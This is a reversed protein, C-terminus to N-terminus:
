VTRMHACTPKPSIIGVPAESRSLKYRKYNKGPTIKVRMTLAVMWAAMFSSLFLSWGFAWLVYRGGNMTWAQQPAATQPNTGHKAAANVFQHWIKEAGFKATGYEACEWDLGGGTPVGPLGNPTEAFAPLLRTHMRGTWQPGTSSSPPPTRSGCWSPCPRTCCALLLPAAVCPLCSSCRSYPVLVYSIPSCACSPCRCCLPHGPWSAGDSCPALCLEVSVAHRTERPALPPPKASALRVPPPPPNAGVLCMPPPFKAGVLRM